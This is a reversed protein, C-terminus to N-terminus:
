QQVKVMVGDGNRFVVHVTGGDHDVDNVSMQSVTCLLGHASTRSILDQIKSAAITYTGPNNDLKVIIARTSDLMPPHDGPPPRMGGGGPGMHRDGGPPPGGFEGPGRPPGEPPRPPAPAIAIVIGSGSNGGQWTLTLDNPNSLSDGRAPATINILAAPATVSTNLASFQSSGSVEFEYTGGSIFEINTEAERPGFSSTYIVRGDSTMRKQLSLHASAFNVSVSGMDVGRRRMSIGRNSDFGIAMAQGVTSETQNQPNFMQRWGISFIGKGDGVDIGAARLLTLESEAVNVALTNTPDSSTSGTTAGTSQSNDSCGALLLGCLLLEFLPPADKKSIM